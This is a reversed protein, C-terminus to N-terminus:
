KGAFRRHERVQDYSVALEQGVKLETHVVPQSDLKGFLIGHEDDSRGVEVWMWETEGSPGGAFEVKVHDGPNYTALSCRAMLKNYPLCKLIPTRLDSGFDMMVQRFILTM